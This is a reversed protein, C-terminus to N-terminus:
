LPPLPLCVPEEKWAWLAPCWARGPFTDSVRCGLVQVRGVQFLGEKLIMRGYAESVRMLIRRKAFRKKAESLGQVRSGLDTLAIGEVFEM